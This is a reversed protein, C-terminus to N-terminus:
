KTGWFEVLVPKGNLAALSKVGMANIPAERFEYAAQSGVQITDRTTASSAAVLPVALALVVANRISILPFM